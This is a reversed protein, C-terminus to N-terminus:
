DRTPNLGALHIQHARSNDGLLPPPTPPPYQWEEEIRKWGSDVYTINFDDCQIECKKFIIVM